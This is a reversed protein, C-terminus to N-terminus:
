QQSNAEELRTVVENMTYHVFQKGLETLVYPKTDEFASEMTSTSSRKGTHSNKHKLFQGYANTEREQRIVRGINLDSIILKFLDAEASNDRPFEGRIEEWIGRRTIGPNKYISRIVAFHVEDYLDLWEIFLRIVDDSCLQTGAANSIINAFYKRKEDTNARDWARFAQRVLSLYEESQIRENIEDGLNSLRQSIDQVTESLNKIKNQHEKIWQTQLHNYERESEETKLSAAASLFGGVWPISGLAALFFKEFVQEKTSSSKNALEQPESVQLENDLAPILKSDNM